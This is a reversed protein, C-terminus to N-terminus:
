DEDPTPPSLDEGKKLDDEQEGHGVAKMNHEARAGGHAELAQKQHKKKKARHKQISQQTSGTQDSSAAYSPAAIAFLVSTALACLTVLKACQKM